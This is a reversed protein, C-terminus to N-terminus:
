TILDGLIGTNCGSMQCFLHCNIHWAEELYPWLYRASIPPFHRRRRGCNRCWMGSTACLHWARVLNWLHWTHWTALAVQEWADEDDKAEAGDSQHANQQGCSQQNNYDKVQPWRRKRKQGKNKKKTRTPTWMSAGLVMTAVGASSGKVLNTRVRDPSLSPRVMPQISNQPPVRRM